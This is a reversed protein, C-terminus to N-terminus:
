LSKRYQIRNGVEIGWQDSLGAGIELVYRAPSGSPIGNANLPETNRAISVVKLDQNIFLIDLSILTNKMYFSRPQENEFIFLMGQDEEMSKRYMLGTEREYPTEAIEINIEQLLSDTEGDFISLSGERSFRIEDTPLVQKAEEKCQVLALGLLIFALKFYEMPKAYM